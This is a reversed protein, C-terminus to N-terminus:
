RQATFGLYVSQAHVFYRVFIRYFRFNQAMHRHWFTTIGWFTVQRFNNLTNEVLQFSTALPLNSRHKCSATETPRPCFARCGRANVTTLLRAKRRRQRQMHVRRLRNQRTKLLFNLMILATKALLRGGQRLFDIRAFTRKSAFLPYNYM